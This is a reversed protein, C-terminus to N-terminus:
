LLRRQRLPRIERLQLGVIRKFRNCTAPSYGSYDDNFFAFVDTVDGLFPEIKEHWQQLDTVRDLVERDKSPFRGHPGIFRLYLFSATRRIQKPMHIYDATALCINYRELLTITGPTEWSRHRFEVAFRIDTPLTKIFSLLAGFQDHAFDPPFQLLVAGLKDGLLRATELFALMSETANALRLDHTIHRPTKLCFTFQDPTVAAWRRVNAPAPPGYFTSDIEVADFLRSYHSLYNRAVMGAPYFPGIWQKYAFGM